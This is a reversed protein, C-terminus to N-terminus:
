DNHLELNWQRWVIRREYRHFTDVFFRHCDTIAKEKENHM